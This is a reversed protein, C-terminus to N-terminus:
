EVPTAPCAALRARFEECWRIVDPQDEILVWASEVFAILDGRTFPVAHTRLHRELARVFAAPTM